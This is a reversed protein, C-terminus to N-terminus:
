TKLDAADEVRPRHRDRPLYHQVVIIGLPYCSLSSIGIDDGWIGRRTKGNPMGRCIALLRVLSPFPRCIVAGSM